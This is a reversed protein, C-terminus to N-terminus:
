DEAPKALNPCQKCLEVDSIEQQNLSCVVKVRICGCGGQSPAELFDMHMCPPGLPIMVWADPSHPDNSKRKYGVPLPPPEIMEDTKTYTIIKSTQDITPASLSPHPPHVYDGKPRAVKPSEAKFTTIQVPEQMTCALCTECTINLRKAMVGSALLTLRDGAPFKSPPNCAMQTGEHTTYVLRRGCPPLKAISNTDITM